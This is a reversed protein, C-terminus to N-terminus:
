WSARRARSLAGWGSWDVKLLTAPARRASVCWCECRPKGFAATGAIFPICVRSKRRDARKERYRRTHLIGGAPCCLRRSEKHLALPGRGDLRTTERCRPVNNWQQYAKTKDDQTACVRPDLSYYIHIHTFLWRFIRRHQRVTAKLTSRKTTDCLWSIQLNHFKSRLFRLKSNAPVRHWLLM